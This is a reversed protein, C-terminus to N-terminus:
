LYYCVTKLQVSVCIFWLYLFILFLDRDDSYFHRNECLVFYFLVFYLGGIKVAMFYDISVYKLLTYFEMFM